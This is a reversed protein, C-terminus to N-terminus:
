RAPAFIVCVPLPVRATRGTPTLRGTNADVKFVVLDDTDRNACVLWNGDPSLAFHRPHRGGCPVIEVPTLIGSASDRAFVALSDNGRNSGYLFRGNPHLQIEASANPGHFGAPLTSVTPGPTLAGTAPDCRYLAITANLENIVYFFRGEPSFVSHRPGAGPASAVAPPDAPALTAAAPDTRYCVIKDLGL